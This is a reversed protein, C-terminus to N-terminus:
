ERIENTEIMMNLFSAFSDVTWFVGGAREVAFKRDEQAPDLKQKPRKLEIEIYKSRWCLLIDGMGAMDANKRLKMINGKIPFGGSQNCWDTIARKIQTQTQAPKNAKM